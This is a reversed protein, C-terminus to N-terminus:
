YHGVPPCQTLRTDDFMMQRWQRNMIVTEVLLSATLSLNFYDSIYIPHCIPKCIPYKRLHRLQYSQWGEFFGTSPPKLLTQCHRGCRAVTAMAGPRASAVAPTLEFTSAHSFAFCWVSSKQYLNYLNINTM